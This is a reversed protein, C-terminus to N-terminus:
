YPQDALPIECAGESNTMAMGIEVASRGGVPVAFIRVIAGEVPNVAASNASPAKFAPSKVTFSLRVPLPVTLTGLDQASGSVQTITVLRPFGTALQPEVSITYQGQDLEMQFSGDDATQTRAPRPLVSQGDFSPDALVEAQAVPRGDSSTARGSVLTRQPPALTLAAGAAIDVASQMVKGFGTGEAPEITIDYSGPPLVTVFRGSDDTSLAAEYKLLSEQKGDATRIWQSAFSLRAAIGTLVDGTANAVVGAISTPAPLSPYDISTLGAGEVVPSVYRPVATWDDPPAVIVEVGNRLAPNDAQSQGITDLRVTSAVGYLTRLPSIRQENAMDALWVHWGDLGDHRLVTATRTDGTPDDLQTGSGGLMFSDTFQTGVRVTNLVPPLAEDYPPEPYLVRQYRASPLSTRYLLEPTDSTDVPVLRSASFLTGMPLGEEAAWSDTTGLLPTFVARVPFSTQESMVVGVIAAAEPTVTYTGSADGVNPLPLCSTVPCPSSSGANSRNFLTAGSIAFTQGAAYFATTPVNVVITFDFSPTTVFECRGNNCTPSLGASPAYAECAQESCANTAPKKQPAGHVPACGVFNVFAVLLAGLTLVAVVSM